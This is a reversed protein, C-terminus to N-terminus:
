WLILGDLVSSPERQIYCFHKSIAVFKGVLRVGSVLKKQSVTWKQVAICWRHNMATFFVLGWSQCGDANKRHQRTSRFMLSRSMTHTRARHWCTKAQQWRRGGNQVQRAVWRGILATAKTVRTCAHVSACVCASVRACSVERPILLMRGPNNTTGGSVLLVAALVSFVVEKQQINKM